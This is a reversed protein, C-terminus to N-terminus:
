RRRVGCRAPAFGRVVQELDAFDGIGWNRRSRLTYLQVRSAGSGGGDRLVQPEFCRAPAVILTCEADAGGELAARLSHYGHALDAPLALARRTDGAATSNAASSRRCTAARM